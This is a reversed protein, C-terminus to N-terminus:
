VILGLGSLLVRIDLLAHVSEPFVLVVFDVIRGNEVIMRLDLVLLRKILMLAM